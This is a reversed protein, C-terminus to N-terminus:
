GLVRKWEEERYGLLVTDPGIVFPRRVLNGNGALLTLAQEDTISRLKSKLNQSKYDLGSTNFVKKVSGSVKLARQLEDLRPPTERIPVVTHPIKRSELFKLAKRCTTCNQYAYVKLM